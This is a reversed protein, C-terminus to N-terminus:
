NFIEYNNAYRIEEPISLFRSTPPLRPEITCSLIKNNKHLELSLSRIFAGFTYFVEAPKNEYDIDIGDFNNAKVLDGIQKIHALRSKQTLMTAKIGERNSWLISPIIKIKKTKAEAIMAVWPEQDIKMPDKIVGASSVEYSFPLIAVLQNIHGTAEATAATKKWYPVWASFQLKSTAGFSILPLFLIILSLLAKKM